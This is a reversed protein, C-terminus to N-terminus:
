QELLEGIRKFADFGAYLVPTKLSLKKIKDEMMAFPIQGMLICDIGEEDLKQIDNIVIEDYKEYEGANFM